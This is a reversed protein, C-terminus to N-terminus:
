GAGVPGGDSEIWHKRLRQIAYETPAPTGADNVTTYLHTYALKAHCLQVLEVGFPKEAFAPLACLKVALVYEVAHWRSHFRLVAVTHCKPPVARGLLATRATFGRIDTAHKRWYMSTDVRDNCIGSLHVGLDFCDPTM